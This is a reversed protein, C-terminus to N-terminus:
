RGERQRELAAAYQEILPAMEELQAYAGEVRDVVADLRTLVNQTDPQPLDGSPRRGRRWAVTVEGATLTPLALPQV